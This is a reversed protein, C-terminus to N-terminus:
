GEKSEPEQNGEELSAENWVRHQIQTVVTLTDAQGDTM